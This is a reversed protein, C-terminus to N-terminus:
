LEKIRKLIQIPRNFIYLIIFPIERELMIWEDSKPIILIRYIDKIGNIKNERINFRLKIKDVFNIKKSPFIIRLVQNELIKISKDNKICERIKSPLKLNFLSQLISLNLYLIREVALLHAKLMILGWDINKSKKILESLDIMWSLRSWMHGAVHLSLILILDENTFTKLENNNFYLSKLGNIPFYRSNPFSFSFGTVNWQIEIPIGNETNKFKYERQYKMYEIEKSKTLNLITEYNELLLIKKVLLFDKKPIYIDIDGFERMSVDNYSQIALIPGKYPVLNINKREFLQVLRILEGMFLLNKLTNIQYHDKLSHLIDEPVIDQYKILNSYLLPRLGHYSAKTLMEGWDVEKILNKVKVEIEPVSYTQLLLILLEDEMELDYPLKVM